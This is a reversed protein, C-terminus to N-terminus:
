TELAAPEAAAHVRRTPVAYRAIGGRDKFIYCREFHRYEAITLKPSATVVDIHNERLTQMLALFNAADFKGVEDTVWPIYVQESSRIMNLMGSLLTILIIANLGTSAIHELDEERAFPKVVDNVTVSGRLTTHRELDIDLTSDQGMLSGFQRLAAATETSPLVPSASMAIRAASERSVRDIEELGKMFGVASFDTVVHVKFDKLRKFSAVGDLGKQLRNNFGKVETEFNNIRKRFQRVKELITQVDNIINPLVQRELSRHVLCLEEAQGIISKSSALPLSKEILDKVSGQRATLEEKIARFQSRVVEEADVAKRELLAIDRRLDSASQTPDVMRLSGAPLGFRVEMESLIAIDDALDGIARKLDGLAEDFRSKAATMYETYNNLVEAAQSHTRTREAAAAILGDLLNHGGERLWRQWLNVVPKRQEVDRIQQHLQKRQQELAQIKAVDVGSNQLHQDRQLALESARESAAATTAHRQEQLTTLALDLRTRAQREQEKATDNIAKRETEHRGSLSRSQQRLDSQQTELNSVEVQAKQQATAIDAARRQNALSLAEERKFTKGKLVNYASESYEQAKKAEQDFTSAKSLFVTAETVAETSMTLSAQAIALRERLGDDDAWYPLTISETSLSWGYLAGMGEVDVRAPNLDTRQLLAPDLVRSLAEKWHLSDDARLVSLFSGDAPTLLQRAENLASEAALKQQNTKLHRREASEFDNRAARSQESDRNFQELVETLQKRHTDLQSSADKCAQSVEPSAVEVQAFITRGAIDGSVAELKQALENREAAQVAGLAVLGQDALKLISDREKDFRERPETSLSQLRGDEQTAHANVHNILEAYKSVIDASTGTAIDLQKTINSAQDHLGGLGAIQTVWAQVESLHLTNRRENELEVAENSQNLATKAASAATELRALQAREVLMENERESQLTQRSRERIRLGDKRALLLPVIQLKEERLQNQTRHCDGISERLKEVTPELNFAAECADRDALWREIQLRSQQLSLKSREPGTGIGGISEQVINVAVHVFDKFNVKEKVVASILRDLHPLSRNAFGFQASMQRLEKGSQSTAKLGLIVARYDAISLKRVPRMGAEAIAEVMQADDRFVRIGVNTSMTFLDERFPGLIFRYEASDGHQSRRLVVCRVDETEHDGRQYEFVLASQATPLVFRLMPERGGVAEAIQSPLTGFFLPILELTTTKGVSNEGTIAAGGRPDIENIAGSPLTGSTRTNVLLMRRLRSAM